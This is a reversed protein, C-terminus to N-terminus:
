STPSHHQLGALHAVVCICLPRPQAYGARSRTGLRHTSVLAKGRGVQLDLQLKLPPVLRRQFLRHIRNPLLQIDEGEGGSSVQRM